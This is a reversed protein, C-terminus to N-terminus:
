EVVKGGKDTCEKATLNTVISKSNAAGCSNKTGCSNAVMCKVTPAGVPTTSSRAAYSETTFLGAIVAAIIAHKRQLNM